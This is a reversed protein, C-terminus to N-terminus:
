NLARPKNDSLGVLISKNLNTLVNKPGLEVYLMPAEKHLRNVSDYWRVSSTIQQVMKDKISELKHWDATVNSLVPTKPERFEFGSLFAEFERAADEMLPSHFAGSVALPVYRAGDAKDIEEKIKDLQSHIGSVVIQEQSNYNAIYVQDYDDIISHVQQYDMGIIAAMGGSNPSADMLEGRKKAISVGTEFDFVGSAYLANYEGLSHGMYYDPAIGRDIADNFYLSNITFLAVQTYSTQSLNKGGSMCLEEISYGAVDSAADLLMKYKAYLHSGMGKFQSGQGPFMITLM